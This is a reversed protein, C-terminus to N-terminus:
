TPPRAADGLEDITTVLTRVTGACRIMEDSDDRWAAENALLAAETAHACLTAARHILGLARADRDADYTRRVAWAAEFDELVAELPGSLEELEHRLARDTVSSVTVSHREVARRYRDVGAAWTAASAVHRHLPRRLGVGVVGCDLSRAGSLRWHSVHHGQDHDHSLVRDHHERETPCTGGM